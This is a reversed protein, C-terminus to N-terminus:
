QFHKEFISYYIVFIYASMTSNPSQDGVLKGFIFHHRLAVFMQSFDNCYLSLLKVFCSIYIYVLVIISEDFYAVRIRKPRPSDLLEFDAVESFNFRVKDPNKGARFVRSGYHNALRGNPMCLININLVKFKPSVPLEEYLITLFYTLCPKRVENVNYETPLNGSYSRMVTGQGPANVPYDSSYSNQNQGVFINTTYDGINRTQVTKMDIHILADETEFFMDSGVPASNPIGFGQTNFFAYIIREAGIDFESRKERGAGPDWQNEWDERITEKTNLGNLIRRKAFLLFHHFEDLYLCELEEIERETFLNNTYM